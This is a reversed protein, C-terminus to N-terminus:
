QKFIFWFNHISWSQRNFINSYKEWDFLKGFGLLNYSKVKNRWAWLKFDNSLRADKRKEQTFTLKLGKLYSNWIQTENMVNREGWNKWSVSALKRWEIRIFCRSLVQVSFSLYFIGVKYPYKEYSLVGEQYM